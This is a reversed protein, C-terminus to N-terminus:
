GDARAEATAEAAAFIPDDGPRDAFDRGVYLYRVIRRADVLVIAPRSIAGAPDWFGYPQIASTGGPDSLLEFDLLLKEAM